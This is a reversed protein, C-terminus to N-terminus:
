LIYLFRIFFFNSFYREERDIPSPLEYNLNNKVKCYKEDRSNPLLDYLIGRKRKKIPESM